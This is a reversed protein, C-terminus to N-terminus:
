ALRQLFSDSKHVSSVVTMSRVLGFVTTATPEISALPSATDLVFKFKELSVKISCLYRLGRLFASKHTAEKEIDKLERFLQVVNKGELTAIDIQDGLKQVAECYAASWLDSSVVATDVNVDLNLQNNTMLRQEITNQSNHSQAEDNGTNTLEKQTDNAEDVPQSTLALRTM